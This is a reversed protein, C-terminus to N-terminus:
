SAASEAVVRLLDDGYRAAKVPGRGDTKQENVAYLTQTERAYVLYGAEPPEAASSTEKLSGDPLLQCVHIGGANPDDNSTYSGVFAVTRTTQASM